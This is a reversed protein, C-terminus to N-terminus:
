PKFPSSPRGGGGSSGGGGGGGGGAAAAGIGVAVGVVGVGTVIMGTKTGFWGFRGRTKEKEAAAMEVPVPAVSSSAIVVREGAAVAIFTGQERNGVRVDGNLVRVTTEGDKQTILAQVFVPEGSERTAATIPATVVTTDTLFYLASTTPIRVSLEGDGDLIIAPAGKDTVGVSMQSHEGLAIVGNAGLAILAPKGAGNRLHSDQLVPAGRKGPTWVEPEHAVDLTEATLVTGVVPRKVSADTAAHAAGLPSVIINFFLLFISAVVRRTRRIRPRSRRLIWVSPSRVAGGGRLMDVVDM